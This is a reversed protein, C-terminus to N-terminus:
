EEGHVHSDIGTAHREHTPQPGTMMEPEAKQSACGGVYVSATVLMLVSLRAFLKTM